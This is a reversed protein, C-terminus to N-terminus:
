KISTHARSCVATVREDTQVAYRGFVSQQVHRVPELQRRLVLAFHAVLREAEEIAIHVIFLAREIHQQACQLSGGNSFAHVKESLYSTKNSQSAFSRTCEYYRMSQYPRHATRQTHLHDTTAASPLALPFLRRQGFQESQRVLKMQEFLARLRHARAFGDFFLAHKQVHLTAVEKSRGDRIIHYM